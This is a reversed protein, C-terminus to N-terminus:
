SQTYYGGVGDSYYYTYYTNWEDSYSSSTFYHGYAAYTRSSEWYTGGAGDYYETLITSGNEHSSTNGYPLSLVIYETQSSFNGTPMGANSYYYGGNGNHFYPQGSAVRTGSPTYTGHAPYSRLSLNQQYLEIDYIWGGSQYQTDIETVYVYTTVNKSGVVTGDAFWSPSQEQTTYGGSGNHYYNVSKTGSQYQTGEFSLYHPVGHEVHFYSTTDAATYTSSGTVVYGGAGDHVYQSYSTGNMYTSSGISIYLNTSQTSSPLTGGSLYVPNSATTWDYYEGGIGDAKVPVTWTQNPEQLPNNDSSTYSVFLGGEAIPRVLSENRIFTGAAPVSPGESTGNLTAENDRPGGLRMDGKFPM